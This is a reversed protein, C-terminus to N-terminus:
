CLRMLLGAGAVGVDAGVDVVGTDVVCLCSDLADAVRILFGQLRMLLRMLLVSMLLVYAVRMLLMPLSHLARSVVEDREELRLIPESAM